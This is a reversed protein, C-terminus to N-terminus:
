ATITCFGITTSATYIATAQGSANTTAAVQSLTGCAGPPNAFTTFSVTDGSVAAGIANTVTAVITTTSTGNAPLSLPVASVFVNNPPMFQSVVTSGSSASDAETATINCPGAVISAAYVVSAQGAANTLLMSTSLSGCAAGGSTTVMVPDGSVAVGASSTVTVTVTSTSAGDAAIIPPSATVVTTFPAPPPNATQIVTVSARALKAVETATITCFGVATSSVYTASVIGGADTTGSSLTLTGCTGFLSFNVTDGSVPAGASTVTATITSTSTGSAPLSSPNATISVKNPVFEFAGIDCAAGQPRAVGRQDAPPPPCASNAVADIAPSGPLLAETQTPGGNDQLPGLRPDTNSLDGPGRLGCTFGSDLNYGSSAMPQNCNGDSSIGGVITRNNAVITSQLTISRGFSVLGGGSTATNGSVTTNILIAATALGGLTLFGGGFGGPGPASNGTITSNVIKIPGFGEDIGGEANTGVNGSITTNQIAAPGFRVALGAAQEGCLSGDSCATVSNGSITSADIVLSGRSEIGAGGGAANVDVTLSNNTIRAKDLTLSGNGGSFIGAGFGRNPVTPTGATVAISNGTVAVRNLSLTGGLNRIGAGSDNSLLGNAITLGALNVTPGPSACPPPPASNPACIDFVRAQPAAPSREVTTQATGAGALNLTLGPSTIALEGKTLDITGAPVMLTVTNSGALDNAFGIAARLTTCKNTELNCTGVGVSDARNIVTFTYSAAHALRIPLIALSSSALLTAAVILARPAPLLRVHLFM